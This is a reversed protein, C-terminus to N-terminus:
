RRYRQIAPAYELYELLTEPDNARMLPERLKGAGEFGNIYIKCFKNLTHLPREGRQWTAQFLKIHKKYLDKRQDASYTPWPSQGAFVFPDHFIGRGIMIGDLQYKNALELGQLRSMVDGNGVILTDPALRDRLERIRGIQDWDAPVKSM